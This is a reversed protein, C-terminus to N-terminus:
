EYCNEPVLKKQELSIKKREVESVFYLESYEYDSFEIMVFENGAIQVIARPDIHPTHVVGEGDEEVPFGSRDFFDLLSGKYFIFTGTECKVVEIEISKSYSCTKIEEKYTKSVGQIWNELNSPLTADKFEKLAEFKEVPTAVAALAEYRDVFKPIKYKRFGSSSDLKCKVDGIKKAEFVERDSFIWMKDPTNHRLDIEITRDDDVFVNFAQLLPKKDPIVKQNPQKKEQVFKPQDIQLILVLILSLSIIIFVTLALYKRKM